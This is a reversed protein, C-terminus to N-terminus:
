LLFAHDKARPRVGGVQHHEQQPFACGNDDVPPEPDDVPRASPPPYADERPTRATLGSRLGCDMVLACAEDNSAEHLWGLYKLMIGTDIWSNQPCTGRNPGIAAAFDALV